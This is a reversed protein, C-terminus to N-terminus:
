IYIIELSGFSVEGMVYLVPADVVPTRAGKEEINGFSTEANIQVNWTRPIFLSISGFSVNVNVTASNNNLAAQDFYVKLSGFSSKFNGREFNQSNIYKISSNFSVYADIVNNFEQTTTESYSYTNSQGNENEKQKQPFILSLGISGFLAIGLM